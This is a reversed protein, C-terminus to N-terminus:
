CAGRYEDPMTPYVQERYVTAIQEAVADSAGLARAVTADWRMAVCETTAEVREGGVHVAEHALVHLAVVQDITPHAKDSVVWSWLAACTDARLRAVDPTDWRVSGANGSLDFLDTTRRACRAVAGPRGSVMVTASTALQQTVQHEAEALGAAAALVTWWVVAVAGLGWSSARGRVLRTGARIALAVLLVTVVTLVGVDLQV